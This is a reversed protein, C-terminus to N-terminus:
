AYQAVMRKSAMGDRCAKEIGYNVGETFGLDDARVLIRKM